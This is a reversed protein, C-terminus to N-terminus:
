SMCYKVSIEGYVGIPGKNSEAHDLEAFDESPLLQSLTPIIMGLALLAASPMRSSLSPGSCTGM